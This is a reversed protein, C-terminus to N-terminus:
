NKSFFMNHVKIYLGLFYTLCFTSKLMQISFKKKFKSQKGTRNWFNYNFLCAWFVFQCLFTNYKLITILKQHFLGQECIFVLSQLEALTSKLRGGLVQFWHFIKKKLLTQIGLLLSQLQKSTIYHFVHISLIFKQIRDISHQTREFNVTICNFKCHM